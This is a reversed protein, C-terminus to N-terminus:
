FKLVNIFVNVVRYQEFIINEPPSYEGNQQSM